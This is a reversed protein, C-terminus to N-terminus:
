PKHDPTKRTNPPPSPKSEISNEIDFQLDQLGARVADLDQNLEKGTDELQKLITQNHLDQKLEAANLERELESRVENFSRRIRSLWATTTRVAGPLREPGLVLLSIVALLVLESFGIDFM